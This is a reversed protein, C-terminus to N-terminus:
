KASNIIKIFKKADLSARGVLAGSVGGHLLFSEANKENVSGGYIIRVDKAASTSFIDSMTKLIFISMELSDSPTDEKANPNTSISWIPEYAITIDQLQAKSVGRFCEDIQTKIFHLYFGHDDRTNEGICVIPKLGAKLACLIKKNVVENTDGKARRDSHGIIVYKVGTDALMSASVEGTHAGSVDASVDQAGLILKKDKLDKKLSLFPYPPCIVVETNKASEASINKWLATAEKRSAPNMKWNAVILYKM